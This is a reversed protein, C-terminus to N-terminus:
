VHLLLVHFVSQNVIFLSTCKQKVSSIGRLAVLNKAAYIKFVINNM